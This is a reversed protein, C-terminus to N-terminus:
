SWIDRIVKKKERLMKLATSYIHFTFFMKPFYLLFHFKIKLTKFSFSGFYNWQYCKWDCKWPWFMWEIWTILSNIPLYGMSWLKSLWTPGACLIKNGIIEAIQIRNESIKETMEVQWVEINIQLVTSNVTIYGYFEFTSDTMELIIIKPPSQFNILPHLWVTLILARILLYQLFDIESEVM